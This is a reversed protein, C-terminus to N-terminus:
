SKSKEMDELSNTELVSEKSKGFFNRSVQKVADVRSLTGFFDVSAECPLSGTIRDIYDRYKPFSKQLFPNLSQMFPEKAGDFVSVNSMQQLTKSILTFTRLCTPNPLQECLGFLKPGLIAANFFRLFLFSSVSIYGFHTGPWRKNAENQFESFISKLSPPCSEVAGFIKETCKELYGLLTQLHVQAEEPKIKHTDLECYKNESLVHKITSQVSAHLFSTCYTKMYHEISKTALSNARFLLSPDSTSLIESKGLCILYTRHLDLANMVPVFVQAMTNKENLVRELCTVVHINPDVLLTVLPKYLHLPLISENTYHYRIRISGAQAEKPTSLTFWSEVPKDLEIAYTDLVTQGLLSTHLLKKSWVSIEVLVSPIDNPLPIKFEQDWFFFNKAKSLTHTKYTSLITEVRKSESIFSTSGKTNSMFSQPSTPNKKRKLSGFTSTDVLLTQVSLKSQIPAINLFSPIENKRELENSLNPSSAGAPFLQFRSSSISYNINSSPASSSTHDIIRISSYADIEINQLSPFKAEIIKITIRHNKRLSPSLSSLHPVISKNVILSSNNSM